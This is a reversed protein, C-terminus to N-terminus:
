VDQASGSLNTVDLAITAKDGPSVFRPMNLEAVLPAAVVTEAQAAAYSDASSVVAMVRLTGNFDPLKLSITAEGKADLAVPGSFLDVLLVTRPMSQSDRKGADGGFRQKAANGEKKEILRGYIDLLDADFRHKGFFFDQPDPTKFNTINLIGVD